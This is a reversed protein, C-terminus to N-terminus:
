SLSFALIHGLKGKVAEDKEPYQYSFFLTLWTHSPLESSLSFSVGTEQNELIRSLAYKKPKWFWGKTQVYWSLYLDAPYASLSGINLKGSSGELEWLVHAQWLTGIGLHLPWVPCAWTSPWCPLYFVHCFTLLWNSSFYPSTLWLTQAQGLWSCGSWSNVMGCVNYCCCFLPVFIYFPVSEEDGCFTRHAM